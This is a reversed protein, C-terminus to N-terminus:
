YFENPLKPILQTLYLKSIESNLSDVKENLVRTEQASKKEDAKTQASAKGSSKRLIEMDKEMDVLKKQLESIERDKATGTLKKTPTPTKPTERLDKLQTKITKNETELEDVKRRLQSSERDNLEM